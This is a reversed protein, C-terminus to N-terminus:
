SEVHIAEADIIEDQPEQPPNLREKVREKLAMREEYTLNSFDFVINPRQDQKEEKWGMRTKAVFFAAPMAAPTDKMAQQYINEAVLANAIERGNKIENAYHTKLYTKSVGAIDSIRDLSHGTKALGMIIKRNVETDDIRHKKKPEDNGRRNDYTTKRAPM